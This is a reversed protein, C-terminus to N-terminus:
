WAALHKYVESIEPSYFHLFNVFERDMYDM